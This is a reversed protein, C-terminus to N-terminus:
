FKVEDPLNKKLLHDTAEDVEVLTKLKNSYFKIEDKSFCLTTTNYVNDKTKVCVIVQKSFIVKLSLKVRDLFNFSSQEPLNM